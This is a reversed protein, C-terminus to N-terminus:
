CLKRPVHHVAYVDCYVFTQEVAREVKDKSTELMREMDVLSEVIVVQKVEMQESRESKPFQRMHKTFATMRERHLIRYNEVDIDLPFQANSLTCVSEEIEDPHLIWPGDQRRPVDLQREKIGENEPTPRLRLVPAKPAKPAKPATYTKGLNDTMNHSANLLFNQSPLRYMNLMDLQV